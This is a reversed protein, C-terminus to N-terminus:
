SEPRDKMFVLWHSKATRGCRNGFLPKADTLNLIESVRIQDENWKFILTGEPKLVRFCEAFGARLDDRWDNRLKGYKLALWSKPGCDILHPPDFVVLSFTGAPFPMDRFDMLVDPDIILERSGGKSSKDKLTHTERRQDGFVAREDHRNFWFM